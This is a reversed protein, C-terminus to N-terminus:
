LIFIGAEGADVVGNGDTASTATDDADMDMWVSLTDIDNGDDDAEIDLLDLDNLGQITIRGGGHSELNIITNGARVSILPTLEEATLGFASLDIRDEETSDFDVIVDSGSGDDPSFVFTDAGATVGEGDGTLDDDGAAGNITDNGAGGVLTDDGTCGVLTDNGEGGMITDEGSGGYLLPDNGAGGDIMDDGANGRLINPNADGTLSDDQASGTINEISGLKDGAAGNTEPNDDSAPTTDTPDEVKSEPISEVGTAPITITDLALRGDTGAGDNAHFVPNDPDTTVDATVIRHAATDALSVTVGLESAEYSVTDSGGDGEIIDAGPGAIFTDDHESGWVLEINRLEDGMAEGGTGMNTALNVTVGEMAEKYVAWDMSAAAMEPNTSSPDSTDDFNPNPIMNDKEGMDEGGDLMDAGPGGYLMDGRLDVAATALASSTHGADSAGGRLTDNGAGGTLKNDWHDGTLRDDHMSGTVNRFTAVEIENNADDPIPALEDYTVIVDGQAHGGSASASALNVTVGADSGAYSLTNMEANPSNGATGTSDTHGGNLEDAGAGGELTDHGAGGELEDDGGGGTLVNAGGNGVLEDDYASGLVNEFNTATDGRAHGRSVQAPSGDAQLRVRVWSDSSAYSLTDNGDATADGAGGSLMDRGAGGEIVNAGAGGTLYDDYQTGIINEINGITVTITSDGVTNQGTNADLTLPNAMTGVGTENEDEVKAYSLTDIDMADDISENVDSTDTDDEPGFGNINTDMKDAYIMDSGAGGKYTDAGGGGVLTDNGDGGDLMDGGAGGYIMDNGGEGYLMDANTDDGDGTAGKPSPGGYIMDDGGGGKITNDRMDGALVDAMGSGTLHMIDPLMAEHDTTEDDEDVVTYEVTVMGGFSDGYADGGDFRSNHLRVTVGMMSDMYSATDDGDGGILVDAGPGGELVDNNRGGDLEDDGSGGYLWDHGRLGSLEDNGGLGWLKNNYRNGTLVDDHSSGVVNEIRDGAVTDVIVDGEADGGRATGDTLNITVGAPSVNYSITDIGTGAGGMLTDAGAGGVLLDNGPGGDLTDDGGFGFLSDDGGKGEIKESKDTGRIKDAGDGGEFPVGLTPDLEEETVEVTYKGENEHEPNGTYAGASIYYTGSVEPVFDFKSDLEGMAGDIDDNQKIFGGKSDYLKLFTDAVGGDAGTLNITYLMGATMEIRIWDEDFKTDLNGEFTDGASMMAATEISAAADMMMEKVTAM